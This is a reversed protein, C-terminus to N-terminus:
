RWWSKAAARLFFAGYAFNTGKRSEGFGRRAIHIPVEGIRLGKKAAKILVESSQYQDERLDLKALQDVKFAKFGSACDTITVGSVLTILRSLIIVGLLRVRSYLETSGLMRSGIVLDLKGSLIPEVLTAIERPDHQNDADMTVGIPVGHQLLFGYGVRSAAGQGRNVPTRALLFAHELAVDKTGDTSGDDVVLVGLETGCIQTPIRPLLAKLNDAENLAPIIVMIQKLRTAIQDRPVVADIAAGRLSRDVLHKLSDLKARSHLILLLAAGNSFLLLALLRGNQFEGLNLMDRFVNISEPDVSVVLLIGGVVLSIIFTGRHWRYGRFYGLAFLLTGIGVLLGAIRIVSM